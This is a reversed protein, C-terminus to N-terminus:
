AVLRELMLAVFREADVEVCVEANPPKGWVNQPDAITKGLALGNQTEVDVLVSQTRM